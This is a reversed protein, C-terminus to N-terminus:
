SNPEDKIRLWTKKRPNNWPLSFVEMKAASTHTVQYLGCHEIRLRQSDPYSALNLDKCRCLAKLLCTNPSFRFPAPDTRCSRGIYLRSKPFIVSFLVQGYTKVHNRFYRHSVAGKNKVRLHCFDFYWFVVWVIFKPPRFFLPPSIPVIHVMVIDGRTGWLTWRYQYMIATHGFLILCLKYSFPCLFLM